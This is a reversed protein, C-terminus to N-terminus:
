IIKNLKIEFYFNLYLTLQLIFQYFLYLKKKQFHYFITQSHLIHKKKKKPMGLERLMLVQDQM